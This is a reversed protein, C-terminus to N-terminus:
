DADSQEDDGDQYHQRRRIYEEPTMGDIEPLVGAPANYRRWFTEYEEPWMAKIKARNSTDAKRILAGLLAYFPEPRAAIHLSAEFDYLNVTEDGVV